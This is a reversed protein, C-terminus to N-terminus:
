LYNQKLYGIFFGCFPQLEGKENPISLRLIEREANQTYFGIGGNEVVKREEDLVDDVFKKRPKILHKCNLKLKEDIAKKIKEDNSSIRGNQQFKLGAACNPNTPFLNEPILDNKKTVDCHPKIFGDLGEQPSCVAVINYYDFIKDSYRPDSKPLLHEMRLKEVNDKRGKGKHISKNCYACIFGQEELLLKQFTRRNVGTFMSWKVAPSNEKVLKKKNENAWSDLPRANKKRKEIYKM